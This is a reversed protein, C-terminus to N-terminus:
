VSRLPEPCVPPPRYPGLRRGSYPGGGDPPGAPRGTVTGLRPPHAWGRRRAGHGHAGRGAAGV